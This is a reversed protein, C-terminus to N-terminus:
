IRRSVKSTKNSYESWNLFKILGLYIVPTLLLWPLQSSLRITRENLSFLIPDFWPGLPSLPAWSLKTGESLQDHYLFMEVLINQGVFVILLLIFANWNWKRYITDQRGMAIWVLLLTGCCITGADALSNLLGNIHL